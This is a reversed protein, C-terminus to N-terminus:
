GSTSWEMDTKSAERGPAVGLSTWNTTYEAHQGPLAFTIVQTTKGFAIVWDGHTRIAKCQKPVRISIQFLDGLDQSQKAEVDTSYYAGLVKALNVAFGKVINLWQDPPFTQADLHSSSRGSWMPPILQGTRLSTSANSSRQSSGLEFSQQPVKGPSSTKM